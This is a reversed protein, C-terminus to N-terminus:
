LATSSGCLVFSDTAPFSSLGMAAAVDAHGSNARGMRQQVVAVLGSVVVPLPIRVTIAVPPGAVAAAAGVSAAAAAPAAAVARGPMAAPTVARARRPPALAVVARAPATLQARRPPTAVSVRWICLAGQLNTTARVKVATSIPTMEAGHATCLVAGCTWSHM